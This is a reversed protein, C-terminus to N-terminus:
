QTIFKTEVTQNHSVIEVHARNQRSISQVIGNTEAELGSVVYHHKAMADRFDFRHVSDKACQRGILDFACLLVYTVKLFAERWSLLEGFARKVLDVRFDRIEAFGDDTFFFGAPDYDIALNRWYLSESQSYPLARKLLSTCKM